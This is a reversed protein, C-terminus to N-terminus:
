ESICDDGVTTHLNPKFKKVEKPYVSKIEQMNLDVACPKLRRNLEQAVQVAKYEKLIEVPIDSANSPNKPEEELGLRLLLHQKIAQLRQMKGSQRDRQCTKVSSSLPTTALFFLGVVAIAQLFKMNEFKSHWSQTSQFM